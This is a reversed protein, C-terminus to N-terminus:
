YQVDVRRGCGYSAFIGVRIENDITTVCNITRVAYATNFLLLLVAGGMCPPLPMKTTDNRHLGLLKSPKLLEHSPKSAILRKGGQDVEEKEKIDEDFNKKKDFSM